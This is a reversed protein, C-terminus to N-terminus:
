PANRRLSEMAEDTTMGGLPNRSRELEAFWDFLFGDYNGLDIQLDKIKGFNYDQGDPKHVILQELRGLIGALEYFYAEPGYRDLHRKWIHKGVERKRDEQIALMAEIFTTM